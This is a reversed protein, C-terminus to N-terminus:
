KYGLKRERADNRANVRAVEKELAPTIDKCTKHCQMSKSYMRGVCFNSHECASCHNEDAKMKNVFDTDELVARGMQLLPFGSDIVKDASKRDTVGGVYIFPFDPMAAKFKLADEMFFLKKFPVTPAVIRGGLTVGLKLWWQKWPFYHVITKIPFEGRMVYMPAKSVFGGSLTIAQVGLRRLEKAVEILEETTQGGKFGDSTNLKATVAIRDGAAKMVEEICMRMFRMRNDLSGGFEDKRHNTYPSLFQSILYGHGAHVEVADFGAEICIKTAEGFSRAVQEIDNRDMKRYFTPSYLNFGNIAGIPTCHCTRRHTMNGCHGIQIAAKAGEAHIADTLKRLEPIVEKCLLLQSDFSLGSECVAAYAITTMGIGGRAVATHYDFLEQTPRNNRCMAEFAASRITRNRLELNGLKYPTFLESM